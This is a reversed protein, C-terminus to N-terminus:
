GPWVVISGGGGGLDGLGLLVVLSMVTVVSDPEISRGKLMKEFKGAEGDWKGNSYENENHM